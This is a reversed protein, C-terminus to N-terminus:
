TQGANHMSLSQGGQLCVKHLHSHQLSHSVSGHLCQYVTARDHLFGKVQVEQRNDTPAQGFDSLQVDSGLGLADGVRCEQLKSCGKCPHVAM